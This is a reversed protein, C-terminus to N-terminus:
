GVGIKGLLWGREAVLKTDLVKKKLRKRGDLDSPLLRLLRGTFVALNRYMERHYGLEGHRRLWTLMNELLSELADTAETEFYIKLLMKRSELNYM